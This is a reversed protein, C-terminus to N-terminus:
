GAMPAGSELAHAPGIWLKLFDQLWRRVAHDYLYRGEIHREREQAGNLVFRHAGRITWRHMMAYTLEAHFQVGYAKDGVKMAQHPYEDGTALLTAGSPLSFGERHWQYIMAPWDMLAAGHETPSIPYYGIEAFERENCCVKGGLQKSLMQAGLCIGYFPKNEKLPVSIWDIERRIYDDPDNASMPGGFIVAGAHDAMTKPLEHGLPPRRIDLAYGMEQLFLGVRGPSSGEQHLVILVQPQGPERQKIWVM